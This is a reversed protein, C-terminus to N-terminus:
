GSVAETERVFLRNPHFYIGEVKTMVMFVDPIAKRGSSFLKRLPITSININQSSHIFPLLSSDGSFGLKGGGSNSVVVVDEFVYFKM